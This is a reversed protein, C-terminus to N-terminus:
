LSWDIAGRGHRELFANAQSFPRSGFFGSHASLPSPHPSTLVLHHAGAGLGKTLEPGLQIRTEAVSSNLAQADTNAYVFDVGEIDADIMNTIANGGAGGVGIVVIRPRLEDMDAPAINISM